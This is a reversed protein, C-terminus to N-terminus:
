IVSLIPSPQTSYLFAHIFYIKHILKRQVYVSKEPAAYTQKVPTAVVSVTSKMM